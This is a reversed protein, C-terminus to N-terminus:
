KKCFKTTGILQNGNYVRVLYIGSKLSSVNLTKSQQNLAMVEEGLINSVIVKDLSNVKLTLMDSAPNPFATFDAVKIGKIESPGTTSKLTITGCGDMNNWSQVSTSQWVLFQRTTETKSSSTSGFTDRDIISIDFGIIGKLKLIREATLTDLNKNYIGSFPIAVEQLYGGLGDLTYAYYIPPEHGAWGASYLKIGVKNASDGFDVNACQAGCDPTGPAAGGGLSDNTNFYIEIHDMNYNFEGTNAFSPYFNDDGAYVLFFLATDCWMAKWWAGNPFSPDDPVGGVALIKEIPISDYKKWIADQTGDIVPAITTKYVNVNVKTQGSIAGGFIFLSVFLLFYFKKM